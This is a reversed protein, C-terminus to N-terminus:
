KKSRNKMIKLTMLFIGWLILPIIFYLLFKPGISDYGKVWVNQGTNAWDSLAAFFYALGLSALTALTLFIYGVIKFVKM